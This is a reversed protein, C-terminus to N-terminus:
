KLASKRISVKSFSNKKFYQELIARKNKIACLYDEKEDAWLSSPDEINKKGQTLYKKVIAKSENTIPKLVTITAMEIEAQPSHFKSEMAKLFWAEAVESIENSGVLKNHLEDSLLEYLILKGINSAGEAAGAMYGGLNMAYAIDNTMETKIKNNAILWGMTVMLSAEETPEENLYGWADFPNPIEIM